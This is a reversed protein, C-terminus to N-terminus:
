SENVVLCSYLGTSRCPARSCMEVTQQFKFFKIKFFIWIQNTPGERSKECVFVVEVEVNKYNASVTARQLDELRQFM